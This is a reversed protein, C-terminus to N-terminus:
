DCADGTALECTGSTGTTVVCHAPPMCSPGLMTDCSPDAATERVSAKCTGEDTGTVAGNASYCAGARCDARSGDALTGCPM